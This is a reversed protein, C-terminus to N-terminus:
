FRAGGHVPVTAGNVYSAAPAALFSVVSAIEEPEGFRGAGIFRLVLDREAESHFDMDDDRVAGPAVANITIDRGGVEGAASSAWAHLAAKTGAYASHGSLGNSGATSGFVIIRGFRARMMPRLCAKALSVASHFNAATLHALEEAGTAVVPRRSRVGAVAVCIDIRGFEDLARRALRDPGTPTSLDVGVPM